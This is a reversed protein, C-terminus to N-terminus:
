RFLSLGQEGFKFLHLFSQGLSLLFFIMQEVRKSIKLLLSISLSALRQLHFLLQLRYFTRGIFISLLYLFASSEGARSIPWGLRASDIFEKM